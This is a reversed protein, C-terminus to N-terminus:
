QEYRHEFLHSRIEAIYLRYFELRMSMIIMQLKPKFVEPDYVNAEIQLFNKLLQNPFKEDIGNSNSM